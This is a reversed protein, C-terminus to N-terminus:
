ATAAIATINEVLVEMFAERAPDKTDRMWCAALSLKDRAPTDPLKLPVFKVGDIGLRSAWRPVIAIGMGSSVLNVITQKEEAIQVVNASLGAGIFLQMSLDHSHPRSKRDPVILPEGAMQHVDVEELDALPHGEPFAVVATERFLPYFELGRDKTEPPRVIAIDLNGSLIKPLLRITKQEVLQVIIEPHRDRFQPLLQPLMGAAASDIAGIRLATAKENKQDRLRTELREMRTIIEIAEPLLLKGAETLAVNRTTRSLLRVGLREELLRIQRGLSAPLMEMQQAAKGFHLKEAVIVFCRLQLFEM